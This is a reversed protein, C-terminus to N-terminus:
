KVVVNGVAYIRCASGCLELARTRADSISKAQEIWGFQTGNSGIAFAKEDPAAVYKAFNDIMEQSMGAPLQLPQDVDLM